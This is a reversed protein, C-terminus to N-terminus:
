AQGVRDGMFTVDRSGNIHRKMRPDKQVDARSTRGRIEVRANETKM